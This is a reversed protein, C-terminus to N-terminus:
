QIWKKFEKEAQQCFPCQEKPIEICVRQHKQAYDSFYNPNHFKLSKKPWLGCSGRKACIVLYLDTKIKNDCEDCVLIQCEGWATQIIVIGLKDKELGCVECYGKM